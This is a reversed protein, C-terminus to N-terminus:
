IGTANATTKIYRIQTDGVLDRPKFVLEIENVTIPNSVSAISSCTQEVGDIEPLGTSSNEGTSAVSNGGISDLSETRVRKRPTTDMSTLGPPTSPRSSTPTASPTDCKPDGPLDPTDRKKVRQARNM